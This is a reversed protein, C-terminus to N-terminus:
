VKCGAETAAAQAKKAAITQRRKIAACPRGCCMDKGYRKLRQEYVSPCLKFTDECICCTVDMLKQGHFPEGKRTM